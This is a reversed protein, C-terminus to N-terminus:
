ELYITEDPINSDKFARKRRLCSECVGCHFEKGDYCSFSLNMPANVEYGIEVIEKKDMNMLPAIIKVKNSTGIKLLNNFANLFDISNDPFNNAEELDWGVIISEAGASEAFSNAIATFVMNRGPVWVKNSKEISLESNLEDMDMKPIENFSTLASNGLNALWDLKIITLEINLEKCVNKASQVEMKFSKQGYDFFIANIQYEENLISTAVVSDLGGSLVSIAKKNTTIVKKNKNITKINKPNKDEKFKPMKM